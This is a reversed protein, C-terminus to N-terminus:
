VFTINDHNILKITFLYSQFECTYLNLANSLLILHKDASCREMVYLIEFHM